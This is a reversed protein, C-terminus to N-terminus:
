ENLNHGGFKNRMAALLKTAFNIEGKQSALRIDFSKQIVPMPLNIKKATELAWKAEGSEHVFGEIDNLEPNETLIELCLSNLWSTIVSHHQWVEAADKLNINKFPGNKLLNYGEALSEMMGYEIANHTMKVFHGTGNQGFYKYGGTPKALSIIIPEILQFNTPQNAGIMMSFGNKYGHVGGSTGVDVLSHGLSEVMKARQITQRYDSNGGDIILSNKPLLQNWQNIQQDVIEAPLMMWLIISDPQNFLEIAQKKDQTITAGLQQVKQLPELSRNIAIVQHHDECLKQVIQYGMKGLGQVIIKM